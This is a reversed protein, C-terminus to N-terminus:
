RFDTPSYGTKEKFSRSFHPVDRFGVANAVESVTLASEQLLVIAKRVRLDQLYRHLPKGTYQLFLQNLYNPHYGFREGLASNTIERHYNVGIYEIVADVLGVQKRSLANGDGALIQSLVALMLGSCSQQYFMKAANFQTHIESLKSYLQRCDRRMLVGALVPVERVFVGAVIEQCSFEDARVPPFPISLEAQDWVLDFNFALLKMPEEPDQFYRYPIGPALYILTGAQMDYFNGDAQLRGRGGTCYFLRCDGACLLDPFKKIDGDLLRAFRVFPRVQDFGVEKM